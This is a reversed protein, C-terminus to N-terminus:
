GHLLRQDLYLEIGEGGNVGARATGYVSGPGPRAGRGDYELDPEGPEVWAVVTGGSSQAAMAGLELLSVEVGEVLDDGSVGRQTSGRPRVSGPILSARVSEDYSQVVLRYRRGSAVAQPPVRIQTRVMGAHIDGLSTAALLALWSASGAM